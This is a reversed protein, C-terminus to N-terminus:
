KSIAKLINKLQHIHRQTHYLVFYLLELKTIDGFAPHTIIGTLDAKQSEEKLRTFVRQLNIILQEQQYTDQTPLIFEPSKFKITFNLFMERLEQMREDASRETTKAEMNLAQIISATSKTVHAAVQAATWSDKFPITNITSESQMSILQLLENSVEDISALLEKTNLQQITM